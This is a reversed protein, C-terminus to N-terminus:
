SASEALVIRGSSHRAQESEFAFYLKRSEAAYELQLTIQAGAQMIQQFKLAEIRAVAGSITLCRRASEIAWKIQVVGPVIPVGPFHGDFYELDDPVVFDIRVTSGDVTERLVRPDVVTM